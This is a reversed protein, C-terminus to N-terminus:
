CGARIVRQRAKAVRLETVQHRLLAGLVQMGHDPARDESLRIIQRYYWAMTGLTNLVKFFFISSNPGFRGRGIRLRGEHPVAGASMCKLLRASLDPEVILPRAMGIVDLCDRRLADTMAARTRFGGTVALPMKVEARLREAFDLFFAERRRTSARLTQDVEETRGEIDFMSPQEYTGGSIEVLDVGAAELWRVVQISDEFSFGGKQFDASNLKVALPFDAGVAQRTRAVAELLFRARAALDGGWGDRRQNILPSLFESILYGHAGHLQVGTFGTERAIAAVRAFRDLADQIDAETMAAPPAFNGLLDLGVESPAMPRRSVLRGCQRGPHSIQMWFQNGASTGATAWRRLAALGGNDDIVVNGPRELFRRDIMVNGTVLTGTGGQAWRRYLTEHRRTARDYPDALGETMASKLLRNPLEVGCPLRLPTDLDVTM